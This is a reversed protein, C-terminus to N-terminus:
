PATLPFPPPPPSTSKVQLAPLTQEIAEAEELMGKVEAESETKGVRHRLDKVRHAAQAAQPCVRVRARVCVCLCCCCSSLLFFFFFSPITPGFSFPFFLPSTAHGLNTNARAASQAYPPPHRPRYVRRKARTNQGKRM